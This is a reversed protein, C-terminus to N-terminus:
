FPGEMGRTSSEILCKAVRAVERGIVCRACTTAHGRDQQNPTATWRCGEPVAHVDDSGLSQVRQQLLQGDDALRDDACDFKKAGSAYAGSGVITWAARSSNWLRSSGIILRARAAVSGANCYMESMARSAARVLDRCRTSSLPTGPDPLVSTPSCNTCAWQISSRETGLAFPFGDVGATYRDPFRVM